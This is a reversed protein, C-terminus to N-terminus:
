TTTLLAQGESARDTARPARALSIDHSIELQLNETNHEVIANNENALNTTM